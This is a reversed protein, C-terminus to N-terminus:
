NGKNNLITIHNNLTKNLIFSILLLAKFLFVIREFVGTENHSTNSSAILKSDISFYVNRHSIETCNQSPHESHQIIYIKNYAIQSFPM